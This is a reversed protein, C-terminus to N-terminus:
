EYDSRPFNTRAFEGHYKIAARDYTMVADLLVDFRGLFVDIKNASITVFWKGKNKDWHVGKYGSQSNYNLQRNQINQSRTAVRLNSRMQNNLGDGDIHDIFIGKPLCGAASSM